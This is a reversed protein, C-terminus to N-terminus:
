KRKTSFNYNYIGIENLNEFKNIIKQSSENGSNKYNENFYEKLLLDPKDKGQENKYVQLFKPTKHHGEFDIMNLHESNMLKSNISQNSENKNILVTTVKNSDSLNGSYNLDYLNISKSHDLNKCSKNELLKHPPSNINEKKKTSFNNSIVGTNNSSSDMINVNERTVPLYSHKNLNSDIILNEENTIPDIGEDIFVKDESAIAGNNSIELNEIKEISQITNLKNPSSISFTVNKNKSLQISRNVFNENGSFFQNSSEVKLFDLRECGKTLLEGTKQVNLNIINIDRNSERRLSEIEAGSNSNSLKPISKKSYDSFSENLFDNMSTKLKHELYSYQIDKDDQDMFKRVKINVKMLEVNRNLNIQKSLNLINNKSSKNSDININALM